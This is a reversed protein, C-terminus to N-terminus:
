EVTYLAVAGAFGAQSARVAITKITNVGDWIVSPNEKTELSITNIGAIAIGTPADREVDAANLNGALNVGDSAASSSSWIIESSGLADLSEIWALKCQGQWIRIATEAGTLDIDIPLLIHQKITGSAAIIAGNIETVTSGSPAGASNAILQKRNFWAGLEADFSDELGTDTFIVLSGDPIGATELPKDSSLAYYVNASIPNIVRLTM